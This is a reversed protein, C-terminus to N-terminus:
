RKLAIEPRLPLLEQRVPATKAAQPQKSLVNASCVILLFLLWTPKRYEWNLTIAGLFWISLISTWLLRETWSPHRWIQQIVVLLILGILTIGILGTETSLAVFVNHPAKKKDIADRFTGSGVGNLPHAAFVQYGERWIDVRGTLNGSAISDGTQSLRQFSSEPILPQIIFLAYILISFVIIRTMLRLRSFTMLVYLSAPATAILSTRSAALLIAMVAGPIYAYNILRLLWGLTRERSSTALYWAMPMGIALTIGMDNPDFGSAAYRIGGRVGVGAFYNFITSVIAVGGGLIYMQLGDDLSERNDLLDWILLSFIFLQIYTEIRNFTNDPKISWFITAANWAIYAFMALHFLHPRRLEGKILVKGMWSATALLGIIRAISGLGPLVVSNEWPISFIFALSLWFAIKRM